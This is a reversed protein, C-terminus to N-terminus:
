WVMILDRQGLIRTIVWTGTLPAGNEYTVDESNGLCLSLTYTQQARVSAAALADREPEPLKKCHSTVFQKMAILLESQSITFSTDPPYCPQEIQM